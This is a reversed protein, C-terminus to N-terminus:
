KCQEYTSDVGLMKCKVKRKLCSFCHQPEPDVHKPGGPDSELDM